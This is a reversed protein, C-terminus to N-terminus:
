KKNFLSMAYLCLSRLSWLERINRIIHTMSIHTM